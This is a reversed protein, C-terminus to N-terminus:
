ALLSYVLSLGNALLRSFARLGNAFLRSFARLGHAFFRNFACLSDLVLGNGTCLFRRAGYLFYNRLTNNVATPLRPPSRANGGKNKRSIYVPPLGAVFPIIVTASVVFNVRIQGHQSAVNVISEEVPTSSECSSFVLGSAEKSSITLPRSLCFCIRSCIKAWSSLEIFSRSRIRSSFNWSAIFRASFSLSLGYRFGNSM